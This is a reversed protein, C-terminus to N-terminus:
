KLWFHISQKKNLLTVTIKGQKFAQNINFSQSILKKQNHNLTTQAQNLITTKGGLDLNIQYNYTFQKNELNKITFYFEQNKNLEITKPLNIHNEFYLETFSDNKEITFILVTVTLISVICVIILLNRLTNEKM